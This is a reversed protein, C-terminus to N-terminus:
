VSYEYNHGHIFHNSGQLTVVSVPQLPTTACFLPGQVLMFRSVVGLLDCHSMAQAAVKALCSSTVLHRIGTSHYGNTGMIM